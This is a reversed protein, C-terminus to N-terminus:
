SGDTLDVQKRRWWVYPICVFYMIIGYGASPLSFSPIMEGSGAILAGVAIGLAGNQIGIGIAIATTQPRNINFLGALVTGAAMLLVILVVIALGLVAFNSIFLDLNAVLAGIIVIATLLTAFRTMYKELRRAGNLLQRAIMGAIVPAVIIALMQISLGTVNIDPAEINMFHRAALPALLPITIVCVLSFAATLAVSLAVDGRALYTFINSTPGGPCLGLIVFGLALEPPLAFVVAILFAASPILLLQAFAGLAFAKPFKAIRKFDAVTLGLGLAFMITVLAAPLGVSLIM